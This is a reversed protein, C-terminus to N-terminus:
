SAEAEASGICLCILCMSLKPDDPESYLTGLHRGLTFGEVGGHHVGGLAMHDLHWSLQGSDHSRHVARARLNQEYYQLLCEIQVNGGNFQMCLSTKGLRTM